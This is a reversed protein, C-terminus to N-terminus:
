SKVMTARLDKYSMGARWNEHSGVVCAAYEASVDTGYIVYQPRPIGDKLPAGNDVVLGEKKVDNICYAVLDGVCVRQGDYSLAGTDQGIIGYLISKDKVVLELSAGEEFELEAFIEKILEFIM